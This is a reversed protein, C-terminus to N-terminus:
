GAAQKKDLERDAPIFCPLHWFLVRYGGINVGDVTKSGNWLTVHGTFSSNPFDMLVIGPTDPLDYQNGSGDLVAVDPEGYTDKLYVEMDTVRYYYQDYNGGSVTKGDGGMIPADAKNLMHSLRVTCANTWQGQELPLNGNVEVAGGIARWVGEPKEHLYNEWMVQTNPREALKGKALIPDSCVLAQEAGLVPKVTKASKGTEADTETKTQTAPKPTTTCASLMLTSVGLFLVLKKM